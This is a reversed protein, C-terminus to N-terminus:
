PLVAVRASDELTTQGGVVVWEGDRLGDVVELRDGSVYGTRVPQKVATSDRVVFVHVADDEEVLAARPVLLVDEHRDYQVAVRAFMGPKLTRSPDRVEVTVAATGTTADIVPSILRVQGSFPRGSLADFTLTAPQGTRLPPVNREPVHLVALLPDLSTVDFVADHVRVLNGTKVHRASVWGAIPARITAHTLELRALDTAVKQAEYDSRAQDFTERSVLQKDHMVQTREFARELQRLTAEARQVELALRRDDLRALPQQARVYQGEEVLLEVVVGETRAVVAAEHEAQLAATGSFAATATGREVPTAEVPVPAQTPAEDPSSQAPSGCGAALLVVCLLLLGTGLALRAHLSPM